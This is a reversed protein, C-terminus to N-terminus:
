FIRLVPNLKNSKEMFLLLKKYTHLQLFMSALQSYERAVGSSVVHM